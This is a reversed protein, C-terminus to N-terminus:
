KLNKVITLAIPPMDDTLTYLMELGRQDKDIIGAARLLGLHRSTSKFSLNIETAISGVSLVKRNTLCRVIAIRRKNALAKLIKELEGDKM